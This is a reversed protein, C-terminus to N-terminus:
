HLMAQLHMVTRSPKNQKVFLHTSFTGGFLLFKWRALHEVEVLQNGRGDDELVQRKTISQM